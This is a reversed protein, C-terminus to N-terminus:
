SPLVLVRFRSADEVGMHYVAEHWQYILQSFQRPELEGCVIFNMWPDDPESPDYDIETEVKGPFLSRTIERIREVLEPPPPWDRQRMKPQVSELVEVRRELTEIRSGMATLPEAVTAPSNTLISM